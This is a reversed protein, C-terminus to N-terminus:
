YKKNPKDIELLPTRGQIAFRLVSLFFWHFSAIQQDCVQQQCAHGDMRGPRLGFAGAIGCGERAELRQRAFPFGIGPHSLSV